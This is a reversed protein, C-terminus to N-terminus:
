LTDCAVAESLFEEPKITKLAGIEALERLTQREVDLSEWVYDTIVVKARAAVAEGKEAIADLSRRRGRRRGRGYGRRSHPPDRRACRAGHARRARRGASRAAPHRRRAGGGSWCCTAPSRM